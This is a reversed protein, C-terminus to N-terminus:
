GALWGALLSGLVCVCVCVRNMLIVIYSNHYMTCMCSRKRASCQDKHKTNCSIVVKGRGKKIFLVM